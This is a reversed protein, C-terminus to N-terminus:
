AYDKANSKNDYLTRCPISYLKFLCNLIGICRLHPPSQVPLLVTCRVCGHEIIGLKALLNWTARHMKKYHNKVSSTFVWYSCFFTTTLTITSPTVLTKVANQHRRKKKEIVSCVCPLM